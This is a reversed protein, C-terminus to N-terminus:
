FLVDSVIQYIRSVKNSNIKPTRLDALVRKGIPFDSSRMNERLDLPPPLFGFPGIKLTITIM